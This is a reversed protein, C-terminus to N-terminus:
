WANIAPSLPPAIAPAFAILALLTALVALENQSLHAANPTIKAEALAPVTIQALCRCASDATADDSWEPVIVALAVAVVSSELAGIIVVGLGLGSTDLAAGTGLAVGDADVFDLKAVFGL